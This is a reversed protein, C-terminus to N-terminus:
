ESESLQRQRILCQGLGTLAEIRFRFALDEIEEARRLVAVVEVISVDSQQLMRDLTQLEDLMLYMEHQTPEAIMAQKGHTRTGSRDAMRAAARAGAEGRGACAGQGHHARRIPLYDSSRVVVTLVPTTDM